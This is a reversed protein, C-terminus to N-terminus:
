RPIQFDPDSGLKRPRGPRRRELRQGLRMEVHSKFRDSGLPYGGLTAERIQDLDSPEIAQEFLSRYAAHRIGANDSLALYEAHPTVIRSAAFGANARHSSWPYARPDSVIGARVPNFEIYRHCALAYRASEVVCSHYRGEWLSGTRGHTRNFYQVYRQGLNKMLLICAKGTPPTLLLHVHNTMLCYAHVACDLGAALEHLHSLYVLYDSEKRFCDGRNNGRQTIHMAVGPLFFRIKRAM